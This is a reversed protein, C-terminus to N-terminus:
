AAKRPRGGKRGNARAARRKSASSQTGGVRGLEAAAPGVAVIQRVAELQRQLTQIVDCEAASIPLLEVAPIDAGQAAAWLADLVRQPAGVEGAVQYVAACLEELAEVRARTRVLEQGNTM